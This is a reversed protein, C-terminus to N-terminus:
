TGPESRRPAVEALAEAPEASAREHRRHYAAVLAAALADTVAEFAEASWGDPPEHRHPRLTGLSV